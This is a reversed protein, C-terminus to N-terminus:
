TREGIAKAPVGGVVTNAEVDKTVVAGAGVIANEGITVGLLIMAGAGIYAGNKIIVEREVPNERNKSSDHSFIMVGPAIQADDGIFIGKTIDLICNVGIFVNRGVVFKKKKKNNYIIKVGRSIKATEHIDYRHITRELFTRAIPLCEFIFELM